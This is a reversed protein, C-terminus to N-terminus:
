LYGASLTTKGSLGVKDSLFWMISDSLTLKKSLGVKDASLPSKEM